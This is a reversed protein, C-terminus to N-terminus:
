KLRGVITLGGRVTDGKKVCIEAEGPIYLETCSGFKIMGYLEGKAASRGVAEM